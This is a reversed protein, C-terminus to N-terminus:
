HVVRGVGIERVVGAVRVVRMAEVERVRGVGLKEVLGEVKNERSLNCRSNWSSRSGRRGGGVMMM